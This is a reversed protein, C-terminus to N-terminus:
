VYIEGECFDLSNLVRYLFVLKGAKEIGLRNRLKSHVLGFTSFVRELSATSSYSTHLTTVLDIVVPDIGPISKWWTIPSVKSILSDAFRFQGFCEAKAQYNIVTAMSDPYRESCYELATEVEDDTLSIGRYKPHLINALLHAPTVNTKIRANVKKKDSQPLITKLIEDLDKWIEVSDAITTSTRQLKDLAVAIPKLRSLYDQCNRKLNM